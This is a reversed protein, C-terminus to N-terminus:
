MDGKVYDDILKFIREDVDLDLDLISINIGFDKIKVYDKFTVLLSAAKSSKMIEELEEKTFFHHDEFYHRSVVRPLFADLRQPRAIATVLAMNETENEIRVARKFDVGEQLLEVKKGSWAKERYPGSPLCFGNKSRVDILLDLKKIHHKSYGDDLFVIKAGMEKAKKIGEERKESVIVVAKPVKLAYIMAEDGSCLVDCLIERGDSVVQLGKTKRGYGRLIIAANEYKLALATTLPTKGSGGVSLNGISIVDIGHDFPVARKYKIWVILCYIFTLPLLLFSLLRQSIDPEYLYREIWFVISKKM